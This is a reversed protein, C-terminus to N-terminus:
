IAKEGKQSLCWLTKLLYWVPTNCKKGLNEQLNPGSVRGVVPDDMWHSSTKLKTIKRMMLKASNTPVSIM